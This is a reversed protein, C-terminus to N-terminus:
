PQALITAGDNRGSISGSPEATRPARALEGIQDRRGQPLDRGFRVVGDAGLAPTARVSAAATSTVSNVSNSVIVDYSGANLPQASSISYSSSNAGAIPQGRSTFGSGWFSCCCFLTRRGFRSACRRRRTQFSNGCVPSPPVHNAPPTHFRRHRGCWNGRSRNVGSPGVRGRHELRTTREPM